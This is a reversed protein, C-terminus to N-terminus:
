EDISEVTYHELIAVLVSAVAGDSYVGYIAQTTELELQTSFTATSRLLPFTNPGGAVGSVNASIWVDTTASLNALRVKTRNPNKAVMLQTNDSRLSIQSTRLMRIQPASQNMITVPVPEPPDYEPEYQVPHGEDWEDPLETFANGAVGHEEQGRYPNIRGAFRDVVPDTVTNDGAKISEGWPSTYTPIPGETM